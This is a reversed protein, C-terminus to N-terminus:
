ENTDDCKKFKLTVYAIGADAFHEGDLNLKNAHKTLVSVTSGIGAVCPCELSFMIQDYVDTSSMMKPILDPTDICSNCNMWCELRSWFLPCFFLCLQLWLAADLFLSLMNLVFLSFFSECQMCLVFDQIFFFLIWVRLLFVPALHTGRKFIEFIIAFLTAALVVLM